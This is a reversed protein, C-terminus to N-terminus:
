MREYGKASSYSRASLSVDPLRQIKREDNVVDIEQVSSSTAIGRKQSRRGGGLMFRRLAFKFLGFQATCVATLVHRDPLEKEM